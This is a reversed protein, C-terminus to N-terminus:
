EKIIDFNEKIYEDACSNLEHMDDIYLWWHERLITDKPQKYEDLYYIIMEWDSYYDGFEDKDSTNHTVVKLIEYEHKKMFELIQSNDKNDPLQIASLEFKPRIKM